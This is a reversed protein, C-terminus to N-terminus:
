GTLKISVNECFKITVKLTAKIGGKSTAVVYVDYTKPTAYDTRTNLNYDAGNAAIVALNDDNLPTTAASDSFLTFDKFGCNASNFTFYTLLNSLSTVTCSGDGASCPTVSLLAESNGSLTVTEYGCVEIHTQHRQVHNWNDLVTMYYETRAQPGDLNVTVIGLDSSSVKSTDNYKTFTAGSDATTEVQYTLPCAVSSAPTFWTKM